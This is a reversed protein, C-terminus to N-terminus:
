NLWFQLDSFDCPKLDEKAVEITDGNDVMDADPASVNTYEVEDFFWVKMEVDVVIWGSSGTESIIIVTARPM